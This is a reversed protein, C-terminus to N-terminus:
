AKVTMKKISKKKTDSGAQNKEAKEEILDLIKEDNMLELKNNRILEEMNQFVSRRM